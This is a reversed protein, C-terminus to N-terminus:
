TNHLSGTFSMVIFTSEKASPADDEAALETLLCDLAAQVKQYQEPTVRVTRLRMAPPHPGEPIEVPTENPDGQERGDLQVTLFSGDGAPTQPDRRAQWELIAHAYATTIDRMVPEILTLPEDLRVLVRPVHFTQAVVQYLVRKGQHGAVRLLGADALKRVHYAVRNAPEALAHAAQSSTSPHLFQELLRAGYTFDLLAEAQAPTRVQFATTQPVTM